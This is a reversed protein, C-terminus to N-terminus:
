DRLLTDARSVRSLSSNTASAWTAASQHQFISPTAEAAIQDVKRAWSFHGDRIDLGFHKAMKKANVVEGVPSRDRRRYASINAVAKIPPM